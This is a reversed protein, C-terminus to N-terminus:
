DGTVSKAYKVNRPADVGAISDTKPASIQLPMSFLSNLIQSRPCSSRSVVQIARENGITNGGSQAAANQAHLKSRAGQVSGLAFRLQNELKVLDDYSLGDYGLAWLDIINFGMDTVRLLPGPIQPRSNSCRTSPLWRTSPTGRNFPPWRTSPALSRRSKALTVQKLEIRSIAIKMKEKETKAKTGAICTFTLHQVSPQIDQLKMQERSLEHVLHAQLNHPIYILHCEFGSFYAVGRRVFM